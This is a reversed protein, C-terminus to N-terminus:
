RKKARHAAVRCKGSCYVADDRKPEFEEECQKCKRRQPPQRREARREREAEARRHRRAADKCVWGCFREQLYDDALSPLRIGLLAADARQSALHYEAELWEFSCEPCKARQRDTYGHEDLWTTHGAHHWYWSDHVINEDSKYVEQHCERCLGLRVESVLHSYRIATACERMGGAVTV